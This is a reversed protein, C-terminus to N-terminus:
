DGIPTPLAIAKVDRFDIDTTPDHGQLSVPGKELRCGNRPNANIPRNDTWDVQQVGNVWTAIHRGHAAVTMTFWEGDKAAHGRAPVRRYIAGTGYDIAASKVKLKDKLPEHTKPDYQDVTYEKPTEAFGNHIQAEYGNQYDGAICRFFVGSNLNKGNTRCTAQLVFDALQKESQLDGPGNKLHLYGEKTVSFETKDRKGDATYKKWGSLDKHNFLPLVLPQYRVNRLELSGGAPVEFVLPSPKVEKATDAGKLEVKGSGGVFGGKTAHSYYFTGEAKDKNKGVALFLKITNWDKQSWAIEGAGPVADGGVKGFGPYSVAPQTKGSWRCDFQVTGMGFPTTTSLKAAKDGGVALVGDKVAADGEIALGFTTEGDFLLIWGEDIEKPTLTNPKPEDAARALGAAALLLLTPVLRRM